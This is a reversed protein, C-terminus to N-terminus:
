SMNFFGNNETEYMIRTLETDQANGTDNMRAQNYNQQTQNFSSPSNLKGPVNCSTQYSSQALSNANIFNVDSAGTDDMNNAGSRHPFSNGDSRTKGIALSAPM